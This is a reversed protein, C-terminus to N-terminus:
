IIAFIIEIFLLFLHQANQNTKKKIKKTKFALILYSYFILFAFLFQLILFDISFTIKKKIFIFYILINQFNNKIQRM